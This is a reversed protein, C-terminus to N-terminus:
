NLHMQNSPFSDFYKMILFLKKYQSRHVFELVFLFNHLHSSFNYPYYNSFRSILAIQTLLNYLSNHYVKKLPYSTNKNRQNYQITHLYIIHTLFFSYFLLLFYPIRNKHCFALNYPFAYYVIQLFIM